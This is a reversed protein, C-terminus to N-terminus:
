IPQFSKGNWRFTRKPLIAAITQREEESVNAVDVSVTLVDESVSLSASIMYPDLLKLLEKYKSVAMTDPRSVLENFDFAINELRNWDRSYMTVASESEPVRYKQIVCLVSNGRETPLLRMQLSMSESMTVAMYDASLTDIRTKEKLLNVVTADLNREALAVGESRLSQNLYPFLSDPMSIWMEKMTQSSAKTTIFFMTIFAMVFAKIVCCSCQLRKIIVIKNKM